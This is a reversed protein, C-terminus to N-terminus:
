NRGLVMTGGSLLSILKQVSKLRLISVNYEDTAGILWAQDEYQDALAGLFEQTLKDPIEALNARYDLSKCFYQANRWNM